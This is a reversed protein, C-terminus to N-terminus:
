QKYSFCFLLDELETVVSEERNSRTESLKRGTQNRASLKRGAVGTVVERDMGEACLLKPCAFCSSTRTNRKYKFVELM